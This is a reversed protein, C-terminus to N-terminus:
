AEHTITGDCITLRVPIDKIGDQDHREIDAGLVVLDALMGDKLRGKRDERFEAYAGERTYGAIAEELTLRQDPLGPKWLGRTLASQISILPNLASVPWDSALVLRAGANKLTRWAYSYPWRAEGIRSVTPELPLGMAGPPHLPQMSAIVGLDRFRGIDEPRVVEIHEIRHRSDRRGNAQRAAEYGDLVTRVAGDGIAHVSIQLRRRDCAAAVEAFREPSFLLDGLHGPKDAYPEVMVATWSELVGDIFIKVRGSHLRDSDYRRALEGAKDLNSLPMFNKFHYPVEVRATFGGEREIEHLLECTYFNGDMNQISTIGFSAAYSLGRKLLERDYAREEASPLPDPEGGTELGLRDRNGGDKLGYVFRIAEGERLEGAALGDAGMVIENGVPLHRGNLIGGAELAATNAWATHHDPAICLVPREAVAKDLHHRTLRQHDSVIGYNVQNAILLRRHPNRAAYSKLAAILGDLTRVAYLDLNDLEAAGSFLHMHCEIFGPLVSGGQADIIRTARSKLPAVEAKTGVRIIRNGRLALAEARPRAEDMTLVRGNTIIVDATM